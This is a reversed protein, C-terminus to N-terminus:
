WRVVLNILWIADSRRCREVAASTQSQKANPVWRSVINRSCAYCTRWNPRRFICFQFIVFSIAHLEKGKDRSDRVCVRSVLGDFELGANKLGAFKLGDNELRANKAGASEARGTV